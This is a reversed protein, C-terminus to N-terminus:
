NGPLGPLLRTRERESKESSKIEKKTMAEENRKGSILINSINEDYPVSAEYKM